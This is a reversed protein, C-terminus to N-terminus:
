DRWAPRPLSFPMGGNASYVRKTSREPSPSAYPSSTDVALQLNRPTWRFWDRRPSLPLWNVGIRRPNQPLRFLSPRRESVGGRGAYIPRRRERISGRIFRKFVGLGAPRCSVHGGSGFGPRRSTIARRRGEGSDRPQGMRCLQSRAQMYGSERTQDRAAHTTWRTKFYSHGQNAVCIGKQNSTQM